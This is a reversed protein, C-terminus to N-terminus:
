ASNISYQMFHKQSTCVFNHKSPNGKAPVIQNHTIIMADHSFSPDGWQRKNCEHCLKTRCPVLKAFSDVYTEGCSVRKQFPMRIVASMDDSFEFPIKQESYCSYEPYKQPKAKSSSKKLLLSYKQLIDPLEAEM